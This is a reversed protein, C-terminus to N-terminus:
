HQIVQRKGHGKEIFIMVPLLKGSSVFVGLELGRNAGIHAIMREDWAM